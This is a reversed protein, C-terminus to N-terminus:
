ALIIEPLEGITRPVRGYIEDLFRLCRRINEDSKIVPDGHDAGEFLELIARETGCCQTIRNVMEVSQFHPVVRDRTGHQFLAPPFDETVYSVASARMTLKQDKEVSQGLVLSCHSQESATDILHEGHFIWECQQDMTFMDSIGYWSILGDVRSSVDVNGMTRDEMAPDDPTAALFQCLAAGASNGWVVLPDVSYGYESAHARLFRIAAKVDFLQAPWLAEDSFRYEVTAVAYGQSVIKFISKVTDERKAGHIWGGGHIFVVLPPAESSEEPYILDLVQRPSQSAYPLDALFHSFQELSVTKAM